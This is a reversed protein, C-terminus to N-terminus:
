AEEAEEEKKATGYGYASEASIYEFDPIRGLIPLSFLDTLDNEDRIRTDKLVMITLIILIVLLGGVGGLTANRKYDPSAPSSPVKAYDIVRASTGDILGAIVHPAVEAAANAIRAAEKPDSNKVYICFIETQNLQSASIMRGIEEPTYEGNLSDSIEGLVRDSKAINVYTNVLRQAASLDAGSLYEMNEASRSNNVYISVHAQYIPQVFEKTVFYTGVAGILACLVILWWKRLYASLLERFDIEVGDLRGRNTENM